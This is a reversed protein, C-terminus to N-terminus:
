DAEAEHFAPHFRVHGRVHVPAREELLAVMFHEHPGGPEVYDSSFGLPQAPQFGFRPYYRPSGVLFLLGYGLERMANLGARVLASGIGRGQVPPDVAIPGLGPLQFVRDGDTITLLTYAAHGVVAGNLVAVHSLLLAGDERLRNVLEAHAEGQFAAAEIAYIAALDKSTEPRIVIHRSFDSGM